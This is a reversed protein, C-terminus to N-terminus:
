SFNAQPEYQAPERLERESICNDANPSDIDYIFRKIFPPSVRARFSRTFEIPMFRSYNECFVWKVEKFTWPDRVEEIAEDKNIEPWYWAPRWLWHTRNFKYRKLSPSLLGEIEPNDPNCLRNWEEIDHPSNALLSPFRSALHPADVLLSQEPLIILNLLTVIRAAAIRAMQEPIVRDKRSIGGRGSEVFEKFTIEEVKRKGTLFDLARQPM